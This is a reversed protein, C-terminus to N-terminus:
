AAPGFRAPAYAQIQVGHDILDSPIPRGEVLAAALRGMAPATQIGFGGLGALWFVGCPESVVRGGPKSRLRLYASRGLRGMLNRVPHDVISEFRAMGLAIDMEDAVADCPASPTEDAPTILLREGCPRFYFSEDIDKVVPWAAFDRHAPARALM